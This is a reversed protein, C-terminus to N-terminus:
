AIERLVKAAHGTAKVNRWEKIIEGNQAVLFTSRIVWMVIKGYNNKEGYVWLEKHLVLDKDSIFPIWLALNSIFKKHSEASDKSVWIIDIGLKNFEWVLCTFDKAEMSCGPTNDKPYFYIITKDSKLMEWLKKTEVSLDPNVIEYTNELNLKM